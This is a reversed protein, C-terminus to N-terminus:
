KDKKLAPDEKLYSGLFDNIKDKVMTSYEEIQEDLDDLTCSSLAFIVGLCLALVLIFAIIKKMYFGGKRINM